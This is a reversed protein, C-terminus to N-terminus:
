KAFILMNIYINRKKHETSNKSIKNKSIKIKKNKIYINRVCTTTYNTCIRKIQKKKGSLLTNQFNYCSM